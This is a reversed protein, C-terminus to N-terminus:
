YRIYNLPGCDAGTDQISEAIRRDMASAAIARRGESRMSKGKQSWKSVRPDADSAPHDKNMSLVLKGVRDVVAEGVSSSEKVGEYADITLRRVRHRPNAMNYAVFFHEAAVIVPNNYVEPVVPEM